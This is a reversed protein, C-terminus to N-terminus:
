IIVKSQIKQVLFLCKSHTITITIFCYNRRAEQTKEQTSFNFKDHITDDINNDTKISIEFKNSTNIRDFRQANNRTASIRASMRAYELDYYEDKEYKNDDLQTDSTNDNM